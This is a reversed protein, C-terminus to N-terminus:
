QISASATNSQGLVEHEESILGCAPKLRLYASCLQQQPTLWEMYACLKYATSVINALARNQSNHCSSMLM